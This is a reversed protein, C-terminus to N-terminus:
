FRGGRGSRGSSRGGGSIRGKGGSSSTQRRTKTTRRYLHSDKKNSFNLSGPIIYGAAHTQGLATNMAKKWSLVVIAGIGFSIVWIIILIIINYQYIFNFSRGKVNLELFKEWNNLFVLAADYTNNGGLYRRVDSHMKDDANLRLINRGKGSNTIDYERGGWDILFLSGDFNTGTGFRENLFNDGYSDIFTDINSEILVIAEFGYTEFIRDSLANLNQLQSPSFRNTNDIVRQAFVPASLLLFIIVLFIFQKTKMDAGIFINKVAPNYSYL